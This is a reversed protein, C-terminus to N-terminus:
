GTDAVRALPILAAKSHGEVTLALAKCKNEHPISGKGSMTSRRRFGSEIGLVSLSPLCKSGKM